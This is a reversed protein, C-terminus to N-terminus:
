RKLDVAPPSDNIAEELVYAKVSLLILDYPAFPTRGGSYGQSPSHCRWAPESYYLYWRQTDEGSVTCVLPKNVKRYMIVSFQILNANGTVVQTGM